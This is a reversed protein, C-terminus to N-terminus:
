DYLRILLQRYVRGWGWVTITRINLDFCRWWSLKDFPYHLTHEEAPKRPLKHALRVDIGRCSTVEWGHVGM